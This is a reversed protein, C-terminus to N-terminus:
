APWSIETYRPTISQISTDEWIYIDFGGRERGGGGARVCYTITNPPPGKSLYNPNSLIM